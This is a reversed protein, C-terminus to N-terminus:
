AVNAEHVQCFEFLNGLIIGQFHRFVQKEDHFGRVKVLWQSSALSIVLFDVKEIRITSILLLPPGKYAAPGELFM